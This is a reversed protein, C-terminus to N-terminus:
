MPAWSPPRETRESSRMSRLARVTEDALVAVVVWCSCSALLSLALEIMLAMLWIVFEVVKWPEFMRLPNAAAFRPEIMTSVVFGSVPSGWITWIVRASRGCSKSVFGLAAWSRASCAMLLIAPRRPAMPLRMLDISDSDLIRWDSSVLVV